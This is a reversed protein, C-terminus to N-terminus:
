KFLGVIEANGMAVALDKATSGKNDPLDKNAKFQNLLSVFDARNNKVAWHLATMGASDQMDVIQPSNSLLTYAIDIHGLEVALVILPTGAGDRIKPSAGKKLLSFVESDKGTRLAQLLENQSELIVAKSSSAGSLINPIIGVKTLVILAVSIIAGTILVSTLNRNKSQTLGRQPNLISPSNKKHSFNKFLTNSKKNTSKEIYLQLEETSEFREEINSACLKKVLELFWGPINKHRSRIESMSGTLNFAPSAVIEGTGVIPRGLLLALTVMGLSYLDATVDIHQGQKQEPAMYALDYDFMDEPRVLNLGDGILRELGFNTLYTQELEVERYTIDNIRVVINEPNILRHLVAKDHAAKLINTMQLLFSIAFNYPIQKDQYSNLFSALSIGNIDQTCTYIFQDNLKRVDYVAEIGPHSLHRTAILGSRFSELGELSLDSETHFMKLLIPFNDLATDQARLVVMGGHSPVIDSILFRSDILLGKKFSNELEYQTMGSYRGSLLIYFEEM